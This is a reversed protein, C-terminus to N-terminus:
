EADPSDHVERFASRCEAGSELVRPVQYIEIVLGKRCLATRRYRDERGGEFLTQPESDEMPVVPYCILFTGVLPDQRHRTETHIRIKITLERGDADKVQLDSGVEVIVGLVAPQGILRRCHGEVGLLCLIESIIREAVDVDVGLKVSCAEVDHHAM